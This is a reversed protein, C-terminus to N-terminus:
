NNRRSLVNYSESLLKTINSNNKGFHVDVNNPQDTIIKQTKPKLPTGVAMEKGSVTGLLLNSRYICALDSFSKKVKADRLFEDLEDGTLSPRQGNIIATVYTADFKEAMCTSTALQGKYEIPGGLGVSKKASRNCDGAEYYRFTNGFGKAGNKTKYFGVTLTFGDGSRLTLCDSIWNGSFRAHANGDGTNPSTNDNDEIVVGDDSGKKPDRYKNKGGGCGWILTSVFALVVWYKFNMILEKM